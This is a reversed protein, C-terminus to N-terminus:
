PAPRPKKKAKSMVATWAITLAEKLAKRSVLDLEVFTSGMRGWGGPVPHFVEDHSACIIAQDAIPLKVMVRNEMEWLTAFIRNNARFSPKGFHDKEEAGPLSLAIERAIETSLM